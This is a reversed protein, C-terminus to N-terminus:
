FSDLVCLEIGLIGLLGAKGIAARDRHLNELRTTKM